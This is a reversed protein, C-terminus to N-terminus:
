RSQRSTSRTPALAIKQGSRVFFRFLLTADRDGRDTTARVASGVREPGMKRVAV